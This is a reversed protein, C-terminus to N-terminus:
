RKNSQSPCHIQEYIKTYTQGTHERGRDSNDTAKLVGARTIFLAFFSFSTSRCVTCCNGHEQQLSLPASFRLVGAHLFFVASCKCVDLVRRGLFFAQHTLAAQGSLPDSLQSLLFFIAVETCVAVLRQFRKTRWGSQSNKSCIGGFSGVDSDAVVTFECSESPSTTTTEDHYVTAAYLFVQM